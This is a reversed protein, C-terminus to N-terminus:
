LISHSMSLDNKMSEMEGKLTSLQAVFNEQLTEVQRNMEAASGELQNRFEAGQEVFRSDFEGKQTSLLNELDTVQSVLENNMVFLGSATSELAEKDQITKKLAGFTAMNIQDVSITNLDDFGYLSQATVSKPMVKVLEQAVFGLVTKDMVGAQEVFTSTYRYRRLPIQKLDNYCRSYDAEQINEKIRSDSLTKWTAGTPKYADGTALALRINSTAPGFTSFQSVNDTLILTSTMMYNSAVVNTEIVCNSAYISGGVQLTYNLGQPNFYSGQSLGVGLNLNSDVKLLKMNNLGGLINIVDATRPNTTVDQSIKILPDSATPNNARRSDALYIQPTSVEFMGFYLSNSAARVQFSTDPYPSSYPVWLNTLSSVLSPTSVFVNTASQFYLPLSYDLVGSTTSTLQSSSIYGTTGLGGVTSFLNSLLVTGAISSTLQTSSIYGSTGLGEITSAFIPPFLNTLLGSTTSTLQTNSAYGSQGLGEVTSAFFPPLLNTTLGNTTSLLQSSSIYGITGLGNVTSVLNNSTVAAVVPAQNLLLIGSSVALLQESNNTLDMFNISSTKLQSTSFSVSSFYDTNIYLNTASSVSVPITFAFITSVSSVQYIYSSTNYYINAANVISGNYYLFDNSSTLTRLSGNASDILNVTSTKVNGSNLVGTSLQNTSFTSLYGAQGLGVVTSVLQGTALNGAGMITSNNLYLVSSSVFMYQNLNNAADLFTISSTQLNGTSINEFTGGGVISSIGQLSSLQLPDIFSAAGRSGTVALITGSSIPANTDPNYAFIRRLTIVDTDYTKRSLSAM